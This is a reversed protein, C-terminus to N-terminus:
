VVSKRDQDSANGSVAATPDFGSQGVAWRHCEYEDSAQRDAPQAQRPYIFVKDAEPAVPGGDHAPPEVVEYGGAHERYYTGNLYLYSLGGVVVATRWLPLDRVVVGYPPRVVVYGTRWPSYWVGHAVHYHNHGWVVRHHQPPVVAVRYGPAPYHRAHGHARDHWQGRAADPHRAAHDRGGPSHRPEPAALATTAAMLVLITALGLDRLAAHRWLTMHIDKLKRYAM